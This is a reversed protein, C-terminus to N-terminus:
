CMKLEWTIVVPLDLRPVSTHVQMWPFWELRSAEFQHESCSYHWKDYQIQHKSAKWDAVWFSSGNRQRNEQLTKTEYCPGAPIWTFVNRVSKVDALTGMAKSISLVTSCVKFKFWTYKQREVSVHKWKFINRFKVQFLARFLILATSRNFIYTVFLSYLHLNNVRFANLTDLVLSFEIKELM